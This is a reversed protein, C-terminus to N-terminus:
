HRIIIILARPVYRICVNLMTHTCRTAPRHFDPTRALQCEDTSVRTCMTIYVNRLYSSTKTINRNFFFSCSQICDPVTAFHKVDFIANCSCLIYARRTLIKTFIAIVSCCTKTRVFQATSSLIISYAGVRPRVFSEHLASAACLLMMRSRRSRSRDTEFSTSRWM